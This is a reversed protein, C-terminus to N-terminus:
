LVRGRTIGATRTARELEARRKSLVNTLYRELVDNERRDAGSSLNAQIKQNVESIHQRLRTLRTASTTQEEFDHYTWAM